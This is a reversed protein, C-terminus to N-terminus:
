SYGNFNRNQWNWSDRCIDELNKEASWGLHSKAKQSDAFFIPLDGDRKTAIVYPIEKNSARQYTELVEIVSYGKGTGLNFTDVGKKYKIYSLAAVHGRALDSM